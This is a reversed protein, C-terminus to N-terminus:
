HKCLKCTSCRASLQMELRIGKWRSERGARLANNRCPLSSRVKTHSFYSFLSVFTPGALALPKPQYECHYQTPATEMQCFFFDVFQHLMITHGFKLTGIYYNINVEVVTLKKHKSLRCHQSPCVDSQGAPPVDIPIRM